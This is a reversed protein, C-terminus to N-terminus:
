FVMNQINPLCRYVPSHACPPSAKWPFPLPPFWSPTQSVAPRFHATSFKDSFSQLTGTPRLGLFGPPPCPRSCVMVGAPQQPDTLPGARSHLWCPSPAAAQRGDTGAPSVGFRSEVPRQASVWECKPLCPSPSSLPFTCLETKFPIILILLDRNEQLFRSQNCWVRRASLIQLASSYLM